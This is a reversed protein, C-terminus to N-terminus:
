QRVISATALAKGNLSIALQDNHHLPGVGEPTGTLIIDGVMLPIKQAIFRIQEVISFLMKSSNGHQRLEGNISLSFDINQLSMKGDFSAMASLPCANVFSKALDWPYRQQKLESQRERLTLDLAIGYHSIARIIDREGLPAGGAQTPAFLDSGLRIAIETEHDCRQLAAPLHIEGSLACVTARAKTFIVPETPVPNNLEKAHAAYNRGICYITGINDRNFITASM